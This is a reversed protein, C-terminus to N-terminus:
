LVEMERNSQELIIMDNYKEDYFLSVSWSESHRSRFVLEKNIYFFTEFSHEWSGTEGVYRENGGKNEMTDNTKGCLGIIGMTILSFGHNKIGTACLRKIAKAM